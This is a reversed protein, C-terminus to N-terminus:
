WVMEAEEPIDFVSHAFFSLESPENTYIGSLVDATEWRNIPVGSSEHLYTELTEHVLTFSDGRAWNALIRGTDVVVDSHVPLTMGLETRERWKPSDFSLVMWYDGQVYGQYTRKHVLEPGWWMEEVTEFGHSREVKDVIKETSYKTLNPNIEVRLEWGVQSSWGFLFTPPADEEVSPFMHDHRAVIRNKPWQLVVRERSM